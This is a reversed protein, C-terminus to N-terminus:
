PIFKDMTYSSNQSAKPLKKGEISKNLSNDRSKKPTGKKQLSASFEGSANLPPLLMQSLESKLGTSSKRLSRQSLTDEKDPTYRAPDM